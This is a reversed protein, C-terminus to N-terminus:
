HRFTTGEEPTLSEKLGHKDLIKMERRYDDLLLSTLDHSFDHRVLIRQFALDGRHPPLTYAPVQWGRTRLRDALDFLNFGHDVGDKLKWALGPIGGRGDYIMEFPGMGAIEDALYQATRYCAEHVKRYGERGLRLFNYYQAVIQGGPRSFNLAFVAM